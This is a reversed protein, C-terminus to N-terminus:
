REIKKIEQTEVIRGKSELYRRKYAEQFEIMKEPCVEKLTEFVLRNFADIQSQWLNLVINTESQMEGSLRAKAEILEKDEDIFALYVRDKKINLDNYKRDLVEYLALKRNVKLILADIAAVKDTFVLSDLNDQEKKIEALEQELNNVEKEVIAKSAVNEKTGKGANVWKVYLSVTPHSINGIEKKHNKLLYRRVTGASAGELIMGDIKDRIKKDFELIKNTFNAM